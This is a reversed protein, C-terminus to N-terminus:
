QLIGLYYGYPLTIIYQLALFLYPVPYITFMKTSWDHDYRGSLELINSRGICYHYNGSEVM